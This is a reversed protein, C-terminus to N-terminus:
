RTARDALYAAMLCTALTILAAAFGPVVPLTGIAAGICLLGFLSLLALALLWLFIHLM